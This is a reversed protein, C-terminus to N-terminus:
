RGLGYRVMAPRNGPQLAASVVLGDADVTLDQGEASAADFGTEMWGRRGVGRAPRGRPGLRLVVVRDPAQSLDVTGAIAVGGGPLATVSDPKVTGGITAPTRLVVSGNRGFSPDPGGNPLFRSVVSKYPAGHEGHDLWLVLSRGRPVTAVALPTAGRVGRPAWLPGVLRTIAGDESFRSIKSRGGIEEVPDAILPGGSAGQAILPSALGSWPLVRGGEGFSRDPVGGETLRGVVQRGQYRAGWSETADIKTTLADAAVVARGKSDVGLGGSYIWPELRCETSPIEPSCDHQAPPLGWETEAIGGSGYAPDLIGNRLYRAVATRHLDYLLVLARERSDVALGTALPVRVTGGDGFDPDPSGDPLYRSLTEQGLLLLDGDPTAAVKPLSAYYVQAESPESTPGLVRGQEGFSLDLGTGAAGAPAPFWAVAMAVCLLLLALSRIM